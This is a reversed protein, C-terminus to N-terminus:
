NAHLLAMIASDEQAHGADLYFVDGLVDVGDQPSAGTCGALRELLVEQGPEHLLRAGGREVFDELADLV